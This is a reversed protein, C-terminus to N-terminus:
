SYVNEATKIYEAWEADDYNFTMFRIGGYAYMINYQNTAHAIKDNHISVVVDSTLIILHYGKLINYELAALIKLMTSFDGEANYYEGGPQISQAWAQYTKTVTAGNIEIDITETTADFGNGEHIKAYDPDTYCQILSFPYFAAGGRAGMAMENVGNAVDDYRKESTTFTIKIKGEFPTNKTAEDLYGQVLSQRTSQEDTLTANAGVSCTFEFVDDDTLDGANKAEDYVEAFLTRAKELDFGTIAEYAEDLTEFDKGAGYEIGYLDVIVQKAEDTKRYISDPDNEVNYYYLSNILGVAPKQGATGNQAYDTRDIAFSFAERFKDYSLILKNVSKSTSSANDSLAKLTDRDTAFFFKYTYTQDTKLLNESFKYTTMDDSVLEVEDIEGAKFKMLQTNHDSIVDCVVRDAQYQYPHKNDRYGYWYENREFVLQKDKEFSALKYPGFSMYKEATTGYSTGTLDGVPQKNAEYLDKYVIWNSTMSTNMYFQSITNETIYLFSYDGLKKFGVTNWTGDGVSLQPLALYSAAYSAYAGSKNLYTDYIYKASVWAEDATEDEVAADRYMTDDSIIVFEPCENGDADLAGELGWFGWMNVYVDGEEVDEAFEYGNEELSKYTTVVGGYFYSYAGYISTDGSYYNNARYNQMAPDLLAKLSYEYTDANIVTGDAWKAGENLTFLWIRGKDGEEIGWDALVLDYDAAKATVDEINNAMEFNWKFTDKEKDYISDVFGIEAYTAIYSDGNTEWTHPNWNQPNAATYEHFTYTKGDDLVSPYSTESADKSTDDGTEKCSVLILSSFVFILAMVGALIKKYM